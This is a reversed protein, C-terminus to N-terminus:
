ARIATSNLAPMVQVFRTFNDTRDQIENELVVAGWLAAARASAIAAEAPNDCRVLDAVAGATDFSATPALHPNRGLFRGCQALAVPHSSVRQLRNISAGPLGILAHAIRMTMEGTVRVCFRNMLAAVGPVAGAINNEVPVIASAARGHALAAFVAELTSCPLMTTGAGTLARAADESFAGPAGQYAVVSRAGGYGDDAGM